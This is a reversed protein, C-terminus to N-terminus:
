AGGEVVRVSIDVSVDYDPDHWCDGDSAAQEARIENTQRGLDKLAEALATVEASVQATTAQLQVARKSRRRVDAM